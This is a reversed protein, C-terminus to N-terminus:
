TYRGVEEMYVSETREAVSDWTHSAEVLERGRQGMKKALLPDSLLKIISNALAVHDGVPILYGNIGDKLVEPTGGVPTAVVPLTSAMAELITLPMGELTSPRVFLTAQRMLEPINDRLGLFQVMHGIGMRDAQEQLRVRLPGNGVLVFKAQPYRALVIAAARIFTEPDKNPVLRAIFLITRTTKDQNAGPYFISTDVGNPIITVPTSHRGMQRAHVAVANSVAIIHDSRRMIFNGVTSEYAHVLFKLIRSGGELKGLHLTTVLPIRIIMRFMAALETTRFFLNHAHVLDPQYNNILQAVTKLAPLSIVFQFGLWRTLDVSPVRRITLAGNAEIIPAPTTRLTLVMITHGRLILRECLETVVREVGGGFHPPYYDSMMIIRM